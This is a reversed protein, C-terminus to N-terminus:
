AAESEGGVVPAPAGLRSNEAKRIAILKDRLEDALAPHEVM